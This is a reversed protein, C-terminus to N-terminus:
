IYVIQCQLTFQYDVKHKETFAAVYNSNHIIFLDFTFQFNMRYIDVCM